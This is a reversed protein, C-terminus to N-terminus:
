ADDQPQSELTHTPLGGGLTDQTGSLVTGVAVVEYGHGTLTRVLPVLGPQDDWAVDVVAVRAGPELLHGLTLRGLDEQAPLVVAGLERAVVHGLVAADPTNWLAIATPRHEHLRVALAAGLTEPIAPSDLSDIRGGATVENAVALVRAQSDSM